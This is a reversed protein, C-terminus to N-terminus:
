ILPPGVGDALPRPPFRRQETFVERVGEKAQNPRTIKRRWGAIAWGSGQVAEKKKKIGTVM